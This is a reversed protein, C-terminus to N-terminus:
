DDILFNSLGSRSLEKLGSRSCGPPLRSVCVPRACRCATSDWSIEEFGVWVAVSECGIRGVTGCVSGPFVLDRGTNYVDRQIELPRPKEVLRHLFFGASPTM